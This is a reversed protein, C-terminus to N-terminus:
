APMEKIARIEALFASILFPMRRHGQMPLARLAALPVQPLLVLPLRRPLDQQVLKAQPAKFGKRSQSISFRLRPHARTQLQHLHDRAVLPSLAWRLLRPQEQSAKLGLRVLWVMLISQGLQTAEVELTERFTWL